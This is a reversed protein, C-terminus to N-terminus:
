GSAPATPVSTATVDTCPVVPNCAVSDVGPEALLKAVLADRNAITATPILIVRYSPPTQSRSVSTWCTYLRQFEEYAQKRTEFYVRDVIATGRLQRGLAAVQRPSATRKIYLSLDVHGVWPSNRGVTTGNETTPCASPTAVPLRLFRALHPPGGPVIPQVSAPSASGGGCGGLAVVTAALALRLAVSAPRSM